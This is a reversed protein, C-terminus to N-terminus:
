VLIDAFQRDSLNNNSFCIETAEEFMYKITFIVQTNSDPRIRTNMLAFLSPKIMYLKNEADGADKTKAQFPIPRDTRKVMIALYQKEPRIAGGEQRMIDNFLMGSQHHLSAQDAGQRRLERSSAFADLKLQSSDQVAPM